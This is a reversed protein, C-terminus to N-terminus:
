KTTILFISPFSLTSMLFFYMNLLVINISETFWKFLLSLWSCKHMSSLNWVSMKNDPVFILTCIGSYFHVYCVCQQLIFNISYPSCHFYYTIYPVLPSPPRAQHSLPLSVAQLASSRPKIGTNPLDGPPPCPLGSWYRAQSVAHAYSGPPCCYM